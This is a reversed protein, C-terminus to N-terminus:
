EKLPDIQWILGNFIIQSDTTIKYYLNEFEEVDDSDFSLNVINGSELTLFDSWDAFVENKKYIKFYLDEDELDVESVPLDLDM